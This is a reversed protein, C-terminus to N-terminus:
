KKTKALGPFDDPYNSTSLEMSVAALEIKMSQDDELEIIANTENMKTIKGHIGSATVIHNGKALTATFAKAKKQKRMQPLIMFVFFVGMILIMPLMSTLGSGGAAELIITLTM